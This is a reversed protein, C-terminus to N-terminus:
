VVQMWLSRHRHFGGFSEDFVKEHAPGKNNQTFPKEQKNPKFTQNDPRRKKSKTNRTKRSYRQM